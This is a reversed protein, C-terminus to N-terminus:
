VKYIACDQFPYSISVIENIIQGPFYHFGSLTTVRFLFFFGFMLNYGVGKYSLLGELSFLGGM